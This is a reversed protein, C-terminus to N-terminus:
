RCSRALAEASRRLPAAIRLSCGVAFPSLLSGPGLCPSSAFCSEVTSPMEASSSMLM